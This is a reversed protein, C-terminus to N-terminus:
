ANRAMLGYSVKGQVKSIRKCRTGLFPKQYENATLFKASAKVFCNRLKYLRHEGLLDSRKGFRYPNYKLVTVAFDGILDNLGSKQQTSGTSAHYLGPLSDTGKVDKESPIKGRREGQCCGSPNSNKFLVTSQLLPLVSTIPWFWGAPKGMPAIAPVQHSIIYSFFYNLTYPILPYM